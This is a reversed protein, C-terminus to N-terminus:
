RSRDKHRHKTVLATDTDPALHRSIRSVDSLQSDIDCLYVVRWLVKLPPTKAVAGAQWYQALEPHALLGLSHSACKVKSREVLEAMKIFFPGEELKPRMEPLRLGLSRYQATIHNAKAPLPNSTAHSGEIDRESAMVFHLAAAAEELQPHQELQDGDAVALLSPRLPSSAELFKLTLRHHHEPAVQQFQALAQMAIQKVVSADHHVLGALLYPLSRTYATKISIYEVSAAAARNFDSVVRVQDQEAVECGILMVKAAFDEAFRDIMQSLDGAALYPLIRGVMPCPKGELEVHWIRDSCGAHEFQPHCRCGSVFASIQAPLACYEVVAKSYAWFLDSYIAEDVRALLGMGDAERRADRYGMRERFGCSRLVIEVSLVEKAAQVEALWRGEILKTRIRCYPHFMHKCVDRPPQLCRHTFDERNGRDVFFEVVSSLMRKWDEYYTLSSSNMQVCNHAIHLLGAVHLSNPLM